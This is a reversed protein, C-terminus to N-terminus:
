CPCRTPSWSRSTSRPSRTAPTWPRTCIKPSMSSKARKRSSRGERPAATQLKIEAEVAKALEQSPTLLVALSNVDHEVPRDHRRRGTRPERRTRSSWSRARARGAHRDRLGRVYMKAATVYANGPGVIKDVQPVSETGFAMAAIAQVGGVQYIEDAGGHRDCHDDAPSGDWGKPAPYLSSKRCEPSRRPFSSCSRPRRILARAAPCMHAPAPWRLTSRGSASARAIETLWMDAQPMQLSHFTEIHDIAHELHELTEYDILEFASDIEGETLRSARSTSATSSSQTSGSPMTAMRGVDDVIRKASEMASEISTRRKFVEELSGLSSLKKIMPNGRYVDAYYM